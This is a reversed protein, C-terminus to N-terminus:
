KDKRPKGEDPPVASQKLVAFLEPTVDIIQTESQQEGPVRLHRKWKAQGVQLAKRLTKVEILIRDDPAEPNLIELRTDDTYSDLERQSCPM